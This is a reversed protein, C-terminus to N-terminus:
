PVRLIYTVTNILRHTHVEKYDWVSEKGKINQHHICDLRCEMPPFFAGLKSQCSFEGSLCNKFLTKRTEPANAPLSQQSFCYKCLSAPHICLKFHPFFRHSLLPLDNSLWPRLRTYESSHSKISKASLKLWHSKNHFIASASVHFEASNISFTNNFVSNM